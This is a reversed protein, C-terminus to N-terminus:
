PRFDSNDLADVSSSRSTESQVFKEGRNYEINTNIIMQNNVVQVALGAPRAPFGLKVVLCPQSM